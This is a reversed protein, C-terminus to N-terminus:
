AQPELAKALALVLYVQNEPKKFDAAMNQFGGVAVLLGPLADSVIQATAKKAKIDAVLVGLADGLAKIEDDVSISVAQAM